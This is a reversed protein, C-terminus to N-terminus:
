PLWNLTVFFPAPLRMCHQGSGDIRVFCMEDQTRANPHPAYAFATADPSWARILASPLALTVEASRSDMVVIGLTANVVSNIILHIGDASWNAAYLGYPFADGTLLRLDGDPQDMDLTYVESGQNTMEVVLLTNSVSSWRLNDIRLFNPTIRRTEGGDANMVVAYEEYGLPTVADSTLVYAVWSEDPSWRALDANTPLEVLPHLQVATQPDPQAVIQPLDARNSTPAILMVALSRVVDTTYLAIRDGGAIYTLEGDYPLAVSRGFTTAAFSATGCLLLTICALISFRWRM